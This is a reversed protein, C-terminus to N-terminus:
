ECTLASIFKPTNRPIDIEQFTKKKEIRWACVFSLFYPVFTDKSKSKQIVSIIFLIFDVSFFLFLIIYPLLHYRSTRKGTRPM